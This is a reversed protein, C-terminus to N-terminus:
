CNGSDFKWDGSFPDFKRQAQFRVKQGDDYTRRCDANICSTNCSVVGPRKAPRAPFSDGSPPTVPTLDANDRIAVPKSKEKIVPNKAYKDLAKLLNGPKAIERTLNQAAEIEKTPMSTVVAARNATASNKDSPDISASLNYLAYGVVRNSAVGLGKTYAVGLNNQARAHGQDAALRNWKVAEKYDQPVGRGYEYVVGLNYQATDNGQDAALRYWKVAEKHDQPVGQSREYMSGLNIQAGANGQDAALRYWKVAEKHDQPVGRGYEYAVGLNLQATDNGQNAALRYWKVAEKYDQPVGQGYEYAAGLNVQAGANGQDAALRYWKVAEKYDQPVGQGNEYMVGLSFQARADGQTALPKWEKLATAYDKKNYAAMGEDHGAQVIGPMMLYSLSLAMLM